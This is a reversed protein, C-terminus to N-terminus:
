AKHVPIPAAPVTIMPMSANPSDALTKRTVQRLRIRGNLGRGRDVM